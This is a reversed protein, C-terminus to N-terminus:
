KAILLPNGYNVGVRLTGTPALLSRADELVDAHTVHSALLLVSLCLTGIKFM